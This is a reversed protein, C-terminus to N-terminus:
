NNALSSLVCLACYANHILPTKFNKKEKLSIHPIYLSMKGDQPIFFSIVPMMNTLTTQPTQDIKM